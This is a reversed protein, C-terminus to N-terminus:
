LRFQAHFYLSDKPIEKEECDIQYYVCAAKEGTLNEPSISFTRIYKKTTLNNLM